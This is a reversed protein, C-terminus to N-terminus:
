ETAEPKIEEINSIATCLSQALQLRDEVSMEEAPIEIRGLKATDRKPTSRM